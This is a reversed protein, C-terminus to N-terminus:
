GAITDLYYALPASTAATAPSVIACLIIRILLAPTGPVAQQLGQEECAQILQQRLAALMEQPPKETYRYLEPAMAFPALQYALTSSNM